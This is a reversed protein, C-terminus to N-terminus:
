VLSSVFQLRPIASTLKSFDLDIYYASSAALFGTYTSDFAVLYKMFNAGFLFERIELLWKLYVTLGM